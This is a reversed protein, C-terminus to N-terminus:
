EAQKRSSLSRAFEAADRLDQENPRGKAIGGLLKNLGYTDYGRCSFEGVVAWGKEELQRRLARHYFRLSRDGRTSFVFANKDLPPLKDVLEIIQKYHKGFAIGSGFGILDYGNLIEANVERPSVVTAHLVTAMADAIQKTNGHHYSLCVILAKVDKKGRKQDERVPSINSIESGM